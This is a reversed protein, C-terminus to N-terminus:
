SARQQAAAVGGGIHAAIAELARRHETYLQHNNGADPNVGQRMGAEIQAAVAALAMLGLQASSSKLSHMCRMQMKHDGANCARQYRDLSENSYDRFQELMQAAFDPNSGDAVMPLSRLAEADLVPPAAPQPETAVATARVTSGVPPANLHRALVEALRAGTIPKVLYDSMGAALCAERDGPMANATLAVIPLPSRGAATETARIHRTATLGDMQPMQCDMLVLEFANTQVLDVAEAGNAALTVVCGLKKLMEVAVHQNIPNDEALLVCRGEYTGRASPQAPDRLAELPSEALLGTIVRLLDARRVPKNLYRQIGLNLRESRDNDAYTSSLMLLKMAATAPQAKIERALQRGDMQPMHMDLVAIGYPRDSLAAVRLLELAEIAGGACSVQMGWGHLQQRLIERNTRNDDVVLARVGELLNTAPAAAIDGHSIPLCLEAIFRSGSGLMSEVRISGGMLLLLRKCIALGLGSGGYERTTSGDAQAFPEFIRSQAEVSIGIGTDEVCLSIRAETASVSLQTVRVVVEGSATFKVANSILNAIVQRVRFPDGRLAFAADLPIFQAALELGKNGAPQAFMSLAEEVVEILSFDVFEFEMQGSEFKSFDLIDNIVGLLHQGSSQVGEAWVRQQPRLESDILLENMGLVGNMPTRIEHSMTALFESKAQSAAEAAEKALRLEATRVVVQAELEDRQAALRADRERVQAVMESFGRDLSDLEVIGSREARVSYDAEFSVREMREHLSGLRTLISANFRRLLRESAGFALLAALLSAVIQGATQRYLRNLSVALVLRAGAVSPATVPQSLLLFDPRIILDRTQIPPLASRRYGDGQYAAFIEGHSRYLVAARIEPSNRLSQLLENAATTDEFALPAAANDAILNAQVHSTAIVAMLGLGFSSIIVVVAVIGVAASLAIRNIRRVRAGLTVQASM